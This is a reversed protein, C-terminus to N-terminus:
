SCQPKQFRGPAPVSGTDGANAPSNKVIPRGPHQIRFFTESFSIMPKM